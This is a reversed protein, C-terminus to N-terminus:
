NRPPAATGVLEELSELHARAEGLAEECLARAAQDEAADAVCGELTRIDRRQVLLLKRLLFDLALDHLSTYEMPFGVTDIRDYRQVLYDGIRQAMQRQDAIIHALAAVARQADPGAYPASDALYQALSRYQTTFARMLAAKVKAKNM